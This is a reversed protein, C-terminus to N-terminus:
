FCYLQLYLMLLRLVGILLLCVNRHARKIVVVHQLLYFLLAPVQITTIKNNIIDVPGNYRFQDRIKKTISVDCCLLFKVQM